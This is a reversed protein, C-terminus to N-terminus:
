FPKPLPINDKEDFGLRKRIEKEVDDLAQMYGLHWKTPIVKYDKGNNTWFSPMDFANDVALSHIVRNATNFREIVEVPKERLPEVQAYIKSYDSEEYQDKGREAILATACGIGYGKPVDFIAIYKM